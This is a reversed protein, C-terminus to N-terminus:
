NGTNRIVKVIMVESIHEFDVAPKLYGSKTLGNSDASIESAYGVIIEPMYKDSIYSTVMVDGDNIDANVDIKTLKIKGDAMLEINGDAMCTDLSSRSMVSLSNSDDIISRVVSYNKGVETIIGVLGKGNIVNMDKEIGDDSGKDINFRSYLTDGAELSVKSIVNAGVMEYDSYKEKIELLERLRLLEEQGTQYNLIQTNLSDVEAQLSDRQAIVEDLEEDSSKFSSLWNGLKGFGAQMPTTVSQIARHLSDDEDVFFTSVAIITICVITLIILVFRVPMNFNSKQNM